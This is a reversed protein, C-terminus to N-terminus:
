FMVEEILAEFLFETDFKDSMVVCPFMLLLTLPVNLVESDLLAIIDLLEYITDSQSWTLIKVLFNMSRLM